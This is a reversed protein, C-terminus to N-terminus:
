ALGEHGPDALIRRAVYNRLIEVSGGAVRYVKVENDIDTYPQDFYLGHGGTLSYSTRTAQEAATVALQKATATHLAIDEGEVHALAAHDRALSAAQLATWSNAVQWQIGQFGTVRNDGVQRQEAYALGLQLARRGLGILDSANGLRSVNFTSRFTAMGKGPEGLVAGAPVRVDDFHVDATRILRSGIANTVRTHVGALTTDVLFATLGEPANVYALTVDCDAGLNVHTKRGNIIWDAGDRVATARMAKFSSGAQTESISESFVLEGGAIGRLWRQRQEETGWDLLWRIGQSAVQGPVLGHRAIEENVVVYEAVTGGTGGWEAPALVGVYGRRGLERYVARPFRNERNAADLEDRAQAALAALDAATRDIWVARGADRRLLPFM